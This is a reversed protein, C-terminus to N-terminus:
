TVLGPMYLATSVPLVVPHRLIVLEPPLGSVRGQRLALGVVLVAAYLNVGSAFSVGLIRALVDVANM